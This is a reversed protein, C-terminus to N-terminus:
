LEWGSLERLEDRTMLGIADVLARGEPSELLGATPFVVRVCGGAFSYNLEKGETGLHLDVEARGSPIPEGGAGCAATLLIEVDLDFTDTAVVLSAQATKTAAAAFEWGPPLEGFCPIMSAEPVAQAMLLLRGRNITDCAPFPGVRMEERLGACGALLVSVIVIPLM